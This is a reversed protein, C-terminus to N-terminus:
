QTGYATTDAENEETQIALVPRNTDKKDKCAVITLAALALLIISKKM